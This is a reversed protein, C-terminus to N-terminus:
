SNINKLLKKKDKVAQQIDKLIAKLEKECFGNHNIDMLIDRSSCKISKVSRAIGVTPRDHTREMFTVQITMKEETDTEHIVIAVHIDKNTDDDDKGVFFERKFFDQGPYKGLSVVEDHIEKLLKLVENKQTSELLALHSFLIGGSGFFVVVVALGLLVKKM